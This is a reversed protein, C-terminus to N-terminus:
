GGASGGGATFSWATWLMVKTVDRFFDDARYAAAKVGFSAQWPSKWVLQLDLERGYDADSSEAGFGWVRATWGLSGANGGAAVALAELGDPPTRLFVDAWGDFGHLTALPTQFADRGDGELVEWEAEVWAPAFGARGALHLYDLELDSRPHDAWDTQRAAEAEWSLKVGGAPREARWEAGFTATSSSRAAPDEFDLLFGYGTVTGAGGAEVPVWVLHSSCERDDGFVRHVRAVWSYDITVPGLGGVTLRAADFSQHNQRWGVPGVFRQDGLSIAQRGAVLAVPRSGPADWRLWAQDIETIEPDAVVPRDTVGNNLGGAGANAYLDDDPVGTVDEVLVLASLGRWRGTEYSLATRLTSAVAEDEFGDDDVVEVRYRLEIRTEGSRLAQLLTPPSAGADEGAAPAAPQQAMVAGGPVLGMVLAAALVSGM